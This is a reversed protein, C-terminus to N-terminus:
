DAESKPVHQLAASNICHRMGTPEPGDEFIHGLHSGCGSCLLEIRRMGLSNDPETIVADSSAAAYFSPWGCGSDYKTDSTYLVQGCGACKYTGPTKSDWYKGTFARETGKERLINYQEPTLLKRWEEESRLVQFRLQSKEEASM